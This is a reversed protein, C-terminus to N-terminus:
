YFYDSFFTRGHFAPACAPPYMETERLAVLRARGESVRAALTCPNGAMQQPALVGIEGHIERWGTRQRLEWIRRPTTVTCPSQVSHHDLWGNM